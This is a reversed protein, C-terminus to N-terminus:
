PDQDDDEPRSLLFSSRGAIAGRPSASKTLRRSGNLGYASDPSPQQRDRKVAASTPADFRRVLRLTGAERVEGGHVDLYKQALAAAEFDFECDLELLLIMRGTAPDRRLVLYFTM